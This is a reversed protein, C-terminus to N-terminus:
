GNRREVPPGRALAALAEALHVIASAAVRPRTTLLVQRGEIVLSVRITGDPEDRATMLQLHEPPRM